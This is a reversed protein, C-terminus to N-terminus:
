VYDIQAKGFIAIKESKNLPLVGEENKLLVIGESAVKRALNTHKKCETIKTKNKGIPLCPHYNIRAWKEM